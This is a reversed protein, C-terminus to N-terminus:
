RLGLRLWVQAFWIQVEDRWSQERVLDPLAQQFIKAMPLYYVCDRRGVKCDLRGWHESGTVMIVRVNAGYSLTNVTDPWMHLLEVRDVTYGRQRLDGQIADPFSSYRPPQLLMWAVVSCVLGVVGIIQAVQRNM